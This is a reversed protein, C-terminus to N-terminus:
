RTNTNMHAPYARSCASARLGAYKSKSTMTASTTLFCIPIPASLAKSSLRGKLSNIFPKQRSHYWQIGSALSLCITHPQLLNLQLACM